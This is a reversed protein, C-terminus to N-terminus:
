LEIIAKNAEARLSKIQKGQFFDKIAREVGPLTERKYDDIVITGGESM